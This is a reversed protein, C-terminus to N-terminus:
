ELGTKIAFENKLKRKFEESLYSKDFRELDTYIDVTVAISSHGLYKKADVPTVGMFYLLTAYTHRLHHLGFKNILMPSPSRKPNYKSVKGDYGYKVNLDLM